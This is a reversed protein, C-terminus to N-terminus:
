MPPFSCCRISNTCVSRQTSQNTCMTSNVTLLKTVVNSMMHSWLLNTYRYISVESELVSFRVAM